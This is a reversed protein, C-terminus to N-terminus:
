LGFLSIEAETPPEPTTPVTPESHAGHARVGIYGKYVKGAIKKQAGVTAGLMKLKARITSQSIFDRVHYEHRYQNVLDEMQANSVFHAADKTVEVCRSLFTDEPKHMTYGMLNRAIVADIEATTLRYEFGSKFLSVVQGWLQAKDVGNYLAKDYSLMQFVLFRRDGTDDKLFDTNNSCGAFSANRKYDRTDAFKRDATIKTQSFAAKLIKIDAKNYQGMEDLLILAKSNMLLLHEKNEFNFDPKTAFYRDDWLLFEFFGTKGRGQEGVLVFANDNRSAGDSGYIQAVLNVIWKRFQVAFLADDETGVSKLLTSLHDAGDYHQALWDLQLPLYNIETYTDPNFITEELKRKSTHVHMDELQGLLRNLMTSKATFAVFDFPNLNGPTTYYYTDSGADFYIDYLQKIADRVDNQTLKSGQQQVTVAGTGASARPVAVGAERALHVLTGASHQAKSVDIADWQRRVEAPDYKSADQQSLEDFFGFGDEGLERKIACGVAFWQAYTDTVTGGTEKLGNVLMEAVQRANSGNVKVTSTPPKKTVAVPTPPAIKWGIVDDPISAPNGGKKFQRCIFKVKAEAEPYQKLLKGADYAPASANYHAYADAPLYTLRSVDTCSEDAVARWRDWHSLMLAYYVAKHNDADVGNVHVYRKLGAGRPSTFVLASYPESVFATRLRNYDTPSLHDFDFGLIQSHTLPEDAGKKTASVDYCASAAFVPLQAKIEAQKKDDTQARLASVISRLDTSQYKGSTIISYVTPLDAERLAPKTHNRHAFLSFKGVKDITQITM